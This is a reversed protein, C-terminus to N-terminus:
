SNDLLEQGLPWHGIAPSGAEVLIPNAVDVVVTLPGTGMTVVTTM